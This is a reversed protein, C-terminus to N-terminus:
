IFTFQCYDFYPIRQGINCKLQVLWNAKTRTMMKNGRGEGIENNIPTSPGQYKEVPFLVYVTPDGNLPWFDFDRFLQLFSYLILCGGRDLPRGLSLEGMTREDMLRDDLAQYM